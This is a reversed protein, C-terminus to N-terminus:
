GFKPPPSSIDASLSDVSVDFPSLWEFAPALDARLVTFKGSVAPPMTMVGLADVPKGHCGQVDVVTLWVFTDSPNTEPKKPPCCAKAKACCDHEEEAPKEEAAAIAQSHAPATVGHAEAWDLKEKMTFCCCAGAWCAESSKCGCKKGQCPYPVSSQKAAAVPVPIGISAVLQGLLALIALFRPLLNM